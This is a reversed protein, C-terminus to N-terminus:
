EGQEEGSGNGINPGSLMKKVRNLIPEVVWHYLTVASMLYVIFVSLLMNWSILGDERLDWAIAVILAVITVMARKAWAPSEKLLGVKVWQALLTTVLMGGTFGFIADPGFVQMLPDLM